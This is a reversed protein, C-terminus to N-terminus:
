VTPGAGQHPPRQQEKPTHSNNPKSSIIKKINENVYKKTKIIVCCNKNQLKGM